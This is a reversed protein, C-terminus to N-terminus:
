LSISVCWRSPVIWNSKWDSGKGELSQEVGMKFYKHVTILLSHELVFPAFTRLSSCYHTCIGSNITKGRKRVCKTM